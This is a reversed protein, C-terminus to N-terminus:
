RASGRSRPPTPIPAFTSRAKRSRGCSSRWRRSPRAGTPLRPLLAERGPGAPGRGASPDARQVPERDGLDRVVRDRRGRGRAGDDGSGGAPCEAAGSARSAARPASPSCVAGASRGSVCSNDAAAVEIGSRELVRVLAGGVFGSAGIVLAKCLAPMARHAIRAPSGM